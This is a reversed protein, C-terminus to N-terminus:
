KIFSVHFISVLQRRQGNRKLWTAFESYNPGMGKSRREDRTTREADEDEEEEERRRFLSLSFVGLSSSSEFDFKLDEKM